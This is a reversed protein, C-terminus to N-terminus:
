KKGKKLLPICTIYTLLLAIGTVIFMFYGDSDLASFCVLDFLCLVLRLYYM